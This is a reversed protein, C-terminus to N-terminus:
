CAVFFVSSHMFASAHIYPYFASILVLLLFFGALFVKGLAFVAACFRPRAAILWAPLEFVEAGRCIEKFLLKDLSLRLNGDDVAHLHNQKLVSM